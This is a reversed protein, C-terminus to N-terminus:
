FPPVATVVTPEDPLDEAKLAQNNTGGTKFTGFPGVFTSDRKIPEQPQWVQAGQAGVATLNKKIEREKLVDNNLHSFMISVEDFARDLVAKAAELMQQEEVSLFIQGELQLIADSMHLITRGCIAMTKASLM